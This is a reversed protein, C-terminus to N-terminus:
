IEWCINTSFNSKVECAKCSLMENGGLSGFKESILHFNFGHFKEPRKRGNESAESMTVLDWKRKDFFSDGRERKSIYM